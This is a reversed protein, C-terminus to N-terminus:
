GGIGDRGAAGLIRAAAAGIGSSAGTVVVASQAVAKRLNTDLDRRDVM